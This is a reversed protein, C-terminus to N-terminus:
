QTDALYALCIAHLLNMLAIITYQLDTWPPYWTYIQLWEFGWAICFVVSLLIRLEKSKIFIAAWSFLWCLALSLCSLWYPFEFIRVGLIIVILHLLGFVWIYIKSLRELEDMNDCM